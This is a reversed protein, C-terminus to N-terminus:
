HGCELFNYSRVLQWVGVLFFFLFFLCSWDALSLSLLRWTIQSCETTGTLMLKILQSTPLTHLLFSTDPLCSVPANPDFMVAHQLWVQRGSALLGLFAFFITMLSIILHLIKKSPLVFGFFFIFILITLLGRQLLCLLCPKINLQYELYFSVLLLILGILFSIFYTQRFSIKM